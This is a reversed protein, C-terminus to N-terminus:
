KPFRPAGGVASEKKNETETDNEYSEVINVNKEIDAYLTKGKTLWSVGFSWLAIAELWFVPDYQFLFEGFTTKGLLKYIAIFLICGIMILGCTVYIRNRVLKRGKPRDEHNKWYLRKWCMEPEKKTKTFRCISFYALTLFLGAASTFHITSIISPETQKVIGCVLADTYSTPFLAVGLAFFCGINGATSDTSDYGTYTFLFLAIACLLGVFINRMGTHYYASISSLTENCGTSVITGVILLIPFAIGLIGVSKRLTYYSILQPDITKHEETSM